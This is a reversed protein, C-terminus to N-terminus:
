RGIGKSWCGAGAEDGGGGDAQGAEGDHGGPQGDHCPQKTVPILLVFTSPCNYGSHNGYLEGNM